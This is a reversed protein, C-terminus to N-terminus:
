LMVRTRKGRRTALFSCVRWLLKGLSPPLRKPYLLHLLATVTIIFIERTPAEFDLSSASTCLSFRLHRCSSQVFAPQLEGKTRHIVFNQTLAIIHALSIACSEDDGPTTQWVISKEDSSIRVWKTVAPKDFQYMKLTYGCKLAEVCTRAEQLNQQCTCELQLSARYRRCYFCRVIDPHDREVIGVVALFLTTLVNQEYQLREVERKLFIHLADNREKNASVNQLTQLELQLIANEAGLKVELERENEILARIETLRQFNTVPLSSIDDSSM